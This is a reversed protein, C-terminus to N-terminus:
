PKRRVMDPTIQLPGGVPQPSAGSGGRGSGGPRAKSPTGNYWRNVLRSEEPTLREGRAQKALLPAIVQEASTPGKDPGQFLVKSTGDPKVGVLSGGVEKIDTYAKQVEGGFMRLNDDTLQDEGLQAFPTPDIGIHQLIPLRQQLAAARQGAPVRALDHTLEGLIELNHKSRALDDQEKQRAMSEQQGRLDLAEKDLGMAAYEQAAGGYDGQAIKPAARAGARKRKIGDINSQTDTWGQQGANLVDMADGGNFYNRAM